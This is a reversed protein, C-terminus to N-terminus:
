QLHKSWVMFVLHECVKDLKGVVTCTVAADSWGSDLCTITETGTLTYGTNCSQTATSDLLTGSAAVFEGNEISRSGCDIFFPNTFSKFSFKVIRFRSNCTMM